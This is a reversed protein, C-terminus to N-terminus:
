PQTYSGFAVGAELDLPLHRNLVDFSFSGIWLARPIPRAGLVQSLDRNLGLAVAQWSVSDGSTPKLAELGTVGTPDPLAYNDTQLTQLVGQGVLHQWFAGMWDGLWSLTLLYGRLPRENPFGSATLGQFTPLSGANLSVSPNFNNLNQSLDTDENDAILDGRVRKLRMQNGSFSVLEYLDGSDSSPKPFINGSGLPIRVEKGLLHAQAQHSTTFNDGVQSVTIQGIHTTDYNVNVLKRGFYYTNGIQGYIAVERNEGVPVQFFNPLDNVKDDNQGEDVLFVSSTASYAQGQGGTFDQSSTNDNTENLNAEPGAYALPCRVKFSTAEALTLEYSVALVRSSLIGFFPCRFVVTYRNEGSPVTFRYQGLGTPSLAQFSGNGVRYAAATAQIPNDLGDVLSVQVQTGSPSENPGGGGCAALLLALGTGLAMRRM